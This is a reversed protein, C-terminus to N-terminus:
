NDLSKEFFEVQGVTKKCLEGTELMMEVQELTEEAFMGQMDERTLPRRFLTAAIESKGLKLKRNMEKKRAAVFVPLGEFKEAIKMLAQGDLPKVAYAPPRDITGIDVRDPKIRKIAEKLLTIEEESDNLTSVFLIELVLLGQYHERFACMGEIIKEMDLTKTPRDLKKFCEGSVCDLSLKVIDFDLLIKQIEPQDITSGNSLILSKADGKRQNVGTLIHALHPYLTPEGNATITIVDPNEFENLASDLESLVSDPSIVSTYSDTPKNKELECYLCDFNCQKIGPSLDIGLSLGFRRSPVPGFITKYM